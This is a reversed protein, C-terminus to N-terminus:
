ILKHFSQEFASSLKKMNSVSSHATRASEFSKGRSLKKKLQGTTSGISSEAANSVAEVKNLHEYDVSANVEYLM